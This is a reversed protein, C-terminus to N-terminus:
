VIINLKLMTVYTNFIKFLTLPSITFKVINFYLSFLNLFLKIITLKEKYNYM